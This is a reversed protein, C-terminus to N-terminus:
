VAFDEPILHPADLDHPETLAERIVEAASTLAAVEGYDLTAGNLYATLAEAVETPTYHM